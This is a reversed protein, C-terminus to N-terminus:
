KNDAQIQHTIDQILFKLIKHQNKNERLINVLIHKISISKITVLKEVLQHIKKHKTFM